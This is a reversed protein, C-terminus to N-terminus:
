ATAKRAGAKRYIERYYRKIMEASTFGGAMEISARMMGEWRPRDNEFVPLVEHLLVRMLSEADYGDQDPAERGDGIQWGNVGHRCGEPWWGDLVSLNLVGNLAAKMGSTGSAEMPRRPTNLWVDCGRILAKALRLDYDPAYIVAGPYRRAMVVLHTIIGKGHGDAPHAKGSFLLQIRGSALLPEIQELRQFILTGRKYSAARRAFGILLAHPNLKVGTRAEIEVALAEKAERHPALLDDGAAFARAISPDQWTGAHVGNTVAIIPATDQLGAWMQRATEAHLRSVANAAGALRLGAVTMNFPDGGIARMQEYNLMGYAGAHHLAGHSHIENGAPVPTHTTFVIEERVARWAQAFDEGGAMREGILELGALVAHGENFHYIDVPIGLARLARMGGVGLVVEQAIRHDTSGCYLIDTLGRVAEDNEALNTDLLYLPANGYASVKSVRCRVRRGWIDVHVRVGTDEVKGNHLDQFTDYPYGDDGIFQRTYGRQWLLGVGTVPLGLDAASKLYDGALVGLGGAYIPLDEHLAYEMCFYAVSPYALADEGPM